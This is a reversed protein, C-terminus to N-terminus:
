HCQNMDWVKKNNYKQYLGTIYHVCSLTKGGGFLATYCILKGTKLNNYHKFRFYAYIDKVLYKVTSVPNLVALRFCVSFIFLIMFAIFVIFIM